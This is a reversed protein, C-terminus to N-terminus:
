SLVAKTEVSIVIAIIMIEAIFYLLGFTTLQGANMVVSFATLLCYAANAIVIIRLFKKPNVPNRFYCYSSFVTLASGIMVFVTLYTVPMGSFDKCYLLLMLCLTSVVAGIGDILFLTKNNYLPIDM